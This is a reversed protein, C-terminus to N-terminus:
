CRGPLKTRARQRRIERWLVETVQRHTPATTLVIAPSFSHLFWNVAASAVFTKGIGHSSRVTVRPFDRVAELIEAQKRWPRAGLVERVFAVPDRAYRAYSGSM